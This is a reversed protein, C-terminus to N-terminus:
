LVRTKERMAKMLHFHCLLHTFNHNFSERCGSIIADSNDSLIYEPKFEFSFNDKLFTTMKRLMLCIQQKSESWAILFAIQRYSHFITETSLTIIPFGLDILKFTGDISIFM